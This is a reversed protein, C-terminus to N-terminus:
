QTEGKIEEARKFLAIKRNELDELEDQIKDLLHKVEEKSRFHKGM